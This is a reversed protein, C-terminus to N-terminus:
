KKAEKFRAKRADAKAKADSVTVIRCSGKTVRVADQEAAPVKGVVDITDAGLTGAFAVAIACVSGRCQKPPRIRISGKPAEEKSSDPIVKVPEGKCEGKGDLTVWYDAEVKAAAAGVAIIVTDAAKTPASGGPLVIIAQKSM